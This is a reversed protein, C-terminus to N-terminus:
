CFKICKGCVNIVTICLCLGSLLWLWCLWLRWAWCHWCCPPLPPPFMVEVPQQNKGISNHSINSDTQVRSLRPALARDSYCINSFQINCPSLVRVCVSACVCVSVFWVYVSRFPLATLPCSKIISQVEYIIKLFPKHECITNSLYILYIKIESINGKM